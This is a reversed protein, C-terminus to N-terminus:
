FKTNLVKNLHYEKTYNAPLNEQYTSIALPLVKSCRAESFKIDTDLLDHLTALVPASGPSDKVMVNYLANAAELLVGLTPTQPLSFSSLKV